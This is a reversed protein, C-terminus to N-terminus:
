TRTISFFERNGARHMERLKQKARAERWSCENLWKMWAEFESESMNAPDYKSNSSHRKKANAPDKEKKEEQAEPRAFRGESFDKGLLYDYFSEDDFQWAGAALVEDALFDAKGEHDANKYWELPVTFYDSMHSIEHAVTACTEPIPLDGRIWIHEFDDSTVFGWLGKEKTFVSLVNAPVGFPLKAPAPTFWKIAMRPLKLEKLCFALMRLAAEKKEARITEQKVEFYTQKEM